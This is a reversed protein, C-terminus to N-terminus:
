EIYAAALQRWYDRAALGLVERRAGAAVRLAEYRGYGRMTLSQTHLRHSYYNGPLRAMRGRRYIRLWYHFDEAMHYAPDYPGVREAITRRYLFCHGVVNSSRLGEPAGLEAERLPLGDADIFQFGTYVLDLEPQRDLAAVMMELAQPAYLDDDQAWTYYIGRAGAFGENLAGPLKDHNSHQRIHKLRPDRMGALIELTRDTSGGDVVILEWHPYTQQVISDVAEALFRSGNLTPLVVSVLPNTSQTPAAAADVPPEAM